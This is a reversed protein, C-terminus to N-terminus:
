RMSTTGKLCWDRGNGVQHKCLVPELWLSVCGAVMIGFSDSIGVCGMAFERSSQSVQESVLMFTNVYLLGGLLGEYLFLLSMQWLRFFPRDFLAQFITLIVNVFQLLTLMYLQRCRFGFLTSSRSIFVGVQYLFGYFVYIDRYDKFLWEPLDDLSFLLTPSIGQNIVYECIYVSCLPVMYPFVLPLMKRFTTVIHSTVRDTTFPTSDVGNSNPTRDENMDISDDNSPIAVYETTSQPLLYFYAILHCFPLISFIVLAKKAPIHLINTFLLFLFSGAIGAAGTGASFGGIAMNRPYYHTLLLFSVEGIGSSASAMCIGSIIASTNSSTFSILLMGPISLVVLAILRHSYAFQHIVLPALLKVVLAPFIDALLVVGKPTASGVLDIAASLIVVYLINNVLGFALFSIFVRRKTTLHLTM